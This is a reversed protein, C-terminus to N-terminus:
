RESPDTSAASSPATTPPPSAPAPTASPHQAPRPASVGAIDSGLGLKQLTTADLKGTGTMGHDEQFKRMADQTNSDWKKTPDGHYYGERALATQIEEIRDTTPAKQIPEWHHRGKKNKKSDSSSKKSSSKSSSQPAGSAAWATSAPVALLLSAAFAVGTALAVFRHGRRAPAERIIADRSIM